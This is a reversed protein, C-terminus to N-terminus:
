LIAKAILGCTCCKALVPENPLGYWKLTRWSHWCAFHRHLWTLIGQVFRIPM